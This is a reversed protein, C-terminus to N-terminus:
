KPIELFDYSERIGCRLFESGRGRAKLVGAARVSFGVATMFLFIERM